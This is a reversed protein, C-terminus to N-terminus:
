NSAIASNVDDITFVSLDEESVDPMRSLRVNRSEELKAHLREMARGNGGEATAVRVANNLAKATKPSDVVDKHKAMRQELIQVQEKHSYNPFNVTKSFRSKMGPNLSMFKDMEGPYGAVIVVTDDKHEEMMKMLQTAAEKGFQDDALTYAEDVFLVGGRAKEFEQRVRDSINNGYQGVLKSRDTEVVKSSPLLGAANYLKALKKAVTTKGTGPEGVFVLHKANRSVPLGADERKQNILGTAVLSDVENAVSNMGIM